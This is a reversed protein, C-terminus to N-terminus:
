LGIIHRIDWKIKLKQTLHIILYLFLFNQTWNSELNSKLQFGIKFWMDMQNKLKQPLRIIPNLFWLTYIWNFELDYIYHSVM